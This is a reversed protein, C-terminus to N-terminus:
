PKQDPQGWGRSSRELSGAVHCLAGARASRSRLKWHHLVSATDDLASRDAWVHRDRLPTHMARDDDIEQRM